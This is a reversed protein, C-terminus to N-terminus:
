SKFFKYSNCENRYDLINGLLGRVPSRAIMSDDNFVTKPRPKKVARVTMPKQRLVKDLDEMIKLQHRRQYELRTFDGRRLIADEDKRQRPQQQQQQQEEQPRFFFFFSFAFSFM